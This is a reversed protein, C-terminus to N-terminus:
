YCVTLGVLGSPDCIVNQPKLLIILRAAQVANLQVAPEDSAANQVITELSETVVKDGEDSDTSELHPVNRRKLIHEDRKNQLVFILSTCKWISGFM